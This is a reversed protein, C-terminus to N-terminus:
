KEETREIYHQVEAVMSSMKACEELLRNCEATKKKLETELSDARYGAYKLEEQLAAIKEGLVNIAIAYGNMEEM